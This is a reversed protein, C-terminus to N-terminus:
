SKQSDRMMKMARDAMEKAIRAQEAKRKEELHLKDQREKEPNYM